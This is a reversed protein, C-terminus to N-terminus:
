WRPSFIANSLSKSHRLSVFCDTNSVRMLEDLQRRDDMRLTGERNEESLVSLSEEQEDTLRLNTLALVEEDPLEEVPREATAQELWLALIDEISRSTQAAVQAARRIVQEPVELTVQQSM